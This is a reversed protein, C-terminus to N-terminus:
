LLGNHAQSYLYLALVVVLIGVVVGLFGTLVETTLWISNWMKSGSTNKPSYKSSSFVETLTSLDASPVSSREIFNGLLDWKTYSDQESGNTQDPSTDEDSRSHAPTPLSRDEFQPTSLDISPEDLLPQESPSRYHVMASITGNLSVNSIATRLFCKTIARLCGSSLPLVSSRPHDSKCHYTRSSFRKLYSVISM